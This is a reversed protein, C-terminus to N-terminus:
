ERVRADSAHPQQAEIRRLQMAKDLLNAAVRVVGWMFLGTWGAVVLQLVVWTSDNM